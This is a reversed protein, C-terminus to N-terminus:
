CGSCSSFTASETIVSSLDNLECGCLNEMAKLISEVESDTLCPVSIGTIAEEDTSTITTTLGSLFDDTVFDIDTTSYIVATLTDTGDFSLVVQANDDNSSYNEKIANIADYFVTANTGSYTYVPASGLVNYGNLTIAGAFHPFSYTGSDVVITYTQTVGSTITPRWRRLSFILSHLQLAQDRLKNVKEIDGDEKSRWMCEVISSLCCKASFRKRHVEFSSLRM